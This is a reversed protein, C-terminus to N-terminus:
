QLQELTEMYQEMVAEYGGTAILVLGYIISGVFSVGIIVLSIIALIKATKASSEAGEYDGALYKTSVQSSFVIGVIGIIGPICCSACCTIFGLVTAIINLTMYNNPMDPQRTNEFGDAQPQGQYGGTSRQNSTEQQNSYQSSTQNQSGQIESNQDTMM